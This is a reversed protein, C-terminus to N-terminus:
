GFDRKWCILCRHTLYSSKLLCLFCSSKWRIQFIINSGGYIVERNFSFKLGFIFRSDDNIWGSTTGFMCSKSEETSRSLLYKSFHKLTKKKKEYLPHWHYGFNNWFIKVQTRCFVLSAPKSPCSTSYIIVSHVIWKLM